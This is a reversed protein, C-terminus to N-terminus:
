TQYSLDNLYFYGLMFLQYSLLSFLCCCLIKHFISLKSEIEKRHISLLTYSDVLNRIIFFACGGFTVLPATSSFLMSITFITVMQSFFYGYQFVYDPKRRWPQSDNMYKRRYDVLWPSFYTLTLEGGRLFYFLGTFVGYQIILTVFFSSSNIMTFERIYDTKVSQTELIKFIPQGQLSLFPFFVMNLHLYIIAKNFISSQFTSHASRKESIASHDILLILAMNICLIILPPWITSFYEIFPIKDIFQLDLHKQSLGQLTKFIVVPTSVFIILLLGLLNWLYRRFFYIGRTGGMNGWIIDIPDKASCMFLTMGKRDYENMLSEDNDNDHFRVFNERVDNRRRRKTLKDLCSTWMIKLSQCPTERYKQLCKSMSYYSDFVVYAHGSSKIPAKIAEQM